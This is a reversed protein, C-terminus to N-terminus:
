AAQFNQLEKQLQEVTPLYLQYQSAFIQTQNEPLTFQVFLMIKILVVIFHWHNPNEHPLKEVRDFIISM